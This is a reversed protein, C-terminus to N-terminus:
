NKRAVVILVPPGATGLTELENGSSYRKMMFDEMHEPLVVSPLSRGRLLKQIAQSLRVFPTHHLRHLEARLENRLRGIDTFQQGFLDAVEFGAKEVVTVFETARFEREHFESDVTGESSTVSANPTSLLLTGSLELISRVRSLFLQPEQLHEITEFSVVHTYRGQVKSLTEVNDQVFHVRARAFQENAVALASESIDVGLVDASSHQALFASGYGVGCAADLVRSADGLYRLAFEYRHLHNAHYATWANTEPVIREIHKSM